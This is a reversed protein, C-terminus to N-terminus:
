QKSRKDRLYAIYEDAQKNQAHIADVVLKLDAFERRLAALTDNSEAL